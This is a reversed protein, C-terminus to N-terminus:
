RPAPRIWLGWLHQNETSMVFLRNPIGSFHPNSASHTKEVVKLNNEEWKTKEEQYPM